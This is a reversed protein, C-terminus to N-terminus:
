KVVKKKGVGKDSLVRIERFLEHGKIFLPSLPHRNNIFVENEADAFYTGNFTLFYFQTHGLKPLAHSKTQSAKSLYNQSLELFDKGVKKPGEQQGAGIVAGGHQLYLSITGEALVFLTFANNNVEGEMVIGWVPSAISPTLQLKQPSVSLLKERIAEYPFVQPSESAWLNSLSVIVIIFSILAIKFSM